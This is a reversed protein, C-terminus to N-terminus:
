MMDFVNYHPVWKVRQSSPVEVGDISKPVTADPIAMMNPKKEYQETVQGNEMKTVRITGDPMIRKITEVM